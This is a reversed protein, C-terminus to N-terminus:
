ELQEYKVKIAFDVCGWDVMPAKILSSKRFIGRSNEVTKMELPVGAQNFSGSNFEQTCVMIKFHETVEHLGWSLYADEIHLPIVTTHMKYQEDFFSLWKEEGPDLAQMPMLDNIISFDSGLFLTSFWLRRGTTVPNKIKLRFKPEIEQRAPNEDKPNFQYHLYPEQHLFHPLLLEKTPDMFDPTTELVEYFEFELGSIPINTFPNDLGKIRHWQAITELNKFVQNVTATSHGNLRQFVPREEGLTRAWFQSEEAHILYQTEEWKEVLTMYLSPASEWTQRILQAAQKDSDPSIAIKLPITPLETFVARYQQDEDLDAVTNTLSHTAMVKRIAVNALANEPASWEPNLTANEFVMLKGSSDAAGQEIGHIKGIDVLWGKPLGDQEQNNYYFLHSTPKTKVTGGLFMSREDESHTAQLQPHQAYTQNYVKAQVKGILEHYTLKGKTQQLGELLSYTFVGRFKSDIFKEKALEDNRCASLSVHRSTPVTVDGNVEKYHNAGLFETWPRQKKADETQRTNYELSRTIDGSHCCDFITTFAVEKDKTVEWLMYSFEKDAIDRGDKTRSDHAVFTEIFGNTSSHKFGEPATMRSGHGSFYFLALDGDRLSSFHNLFTHIINSRSANDNLLVKIDLQVSKLNLHNTLYRKIAAVDFKCGRLRHAPNPYDNIGVLLVKLFPLNNM